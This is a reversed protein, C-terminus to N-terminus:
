KQFFLFYPMLINYTDIRLSPTVSGPVCGRAPYHLPSETQIKGGTNVGESLM